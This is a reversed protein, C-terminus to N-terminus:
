RGREKDHRADSDLTDVLRELRSIRDGQTMRLDGIEAHLEPLQDKLTHIDDRMGVLESGFWGLLAVALLVLATTTMQLWHDPARPRPATTADTM